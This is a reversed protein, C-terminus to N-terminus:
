SVNEWNQKLESMIISEGILLVRNNNNLECEIVGTRESAQFGILKNKHLKKSWYTSLYCHASGTVPDENIGVAPGFCRSVFDYNPDISKATVTFVKQPHSKLLEFNPKIQRVHKENELEILCWDGDTGVFIPKANTFSEIISDSNSSHIEKSPFDLVIKDGDLKSSLIGSRTQFEITKNKSVIGYEYLIKATALTAHGCLDVEQTPTFWRLSFKADNDRAIAFATESCNLERAIKLMLIESIGKELICVGAPNGTFPKNTFTDVTFIKMQSITLLAM